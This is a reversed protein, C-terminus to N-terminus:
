KHLTSSRSRLSLPTVQRSSHTGQQLATTQHGNFLLVRYRKDSIEAPQSFKQFHAPFHLLTIPLGIYVDNHPWRPTTFAFPSSIKCVRFGCVPFWRSVLPPITVM